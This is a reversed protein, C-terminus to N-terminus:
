AGAKEDHRKAFALLEAGLADLDADAGTSLVLMSAAGSYFIGEAIEPDVRRISVPSGAVFDGFVRALTRDKPASM